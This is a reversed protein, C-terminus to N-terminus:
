KLPKRPKGDLAHDLLRWSLEEVLRGGPTPNQEVATGIIPVQDAHAVKPPVATIM